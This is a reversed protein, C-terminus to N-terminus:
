SSSAVSLSRPLVFSYSASWRSRGFAALRAERALLRREAEAVRDPTRALDDAVLGEGHDQGVHQAAAPHGLHDGCVLPV